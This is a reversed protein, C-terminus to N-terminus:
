DAGQNRLSLAQQLRERTRPGMPTADWDWTLPDFACAADLLDWGAQPDFGSLCELVKFRLTEIVVARGYVGRTLERLKRRVEALAPYYVDRRWDAPPPRAALGQPDAPV